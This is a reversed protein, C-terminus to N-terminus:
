NSGRSYVLSAAESRIVKHMLHQLANLGFNKEHAEMRSFATEIRQRKESDLMESDTLLSLLLCEFYSGLAPASLETILKALSADLEMSFTECVKKLQGVVELCALM